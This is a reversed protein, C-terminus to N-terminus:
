RDLTEEVGDFMRKNEGSKNAESSGLAAKSNGDLAMAQRQQYINWEVNADAIEWSHERRAIEALQDQEKVLTSIIRTKDRIQVFSAKQLTQLHAVQRLLHENQAKLDVLDSKTKDGNLSVFSLGDDTANLSVSDTAILEAVGSELLERPISPYALAHQFSSQREFKAQGVARLHNRSLKMKPQSSFFYDGSIVGEADLTIMRPKTVEVLKTRSDDANLLGQVPVMIINSVTGPLTDTVALFSGKSVDWSVIKGSKHGSLLRTGDWSLALSLGGGLDQGEVKWMHTEGPQVPTTDNEDYLNNVHSGDEYFDILQVCGNDYTIYFGRDSEDLVLARPIDSLLYIRLAIGRKYDWVVATQDESASV